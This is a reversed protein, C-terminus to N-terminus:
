LLFVKIEARISLLRKSDPSYAYVYYFSDEVSPDFADLANTLEPFQIVNCKGRLLSSDISTQLDTIFLERALIRPNGKDAAERDLLAQKSVDPVDCTRWFYKLVVTCKERRSLKIEDIMGVVYYDFDTDEFYVFDSPRYEVSASICSQIREDGHNGRDSRGKGRNSRRLPQEKTPEPTSPGHNQHSDHSNEDITQSANLIDDDATNAFMEM